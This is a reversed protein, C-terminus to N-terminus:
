PAIGFPRQQQVDQQALMRGDVLYPHHRPQSRHRHTEVRSFHRGLMHQHQQIPHHAIQAL